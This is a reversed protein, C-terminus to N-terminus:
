PLFGPTSARALLALPLLSFGAGLALALARGGARIRGRNAPDLWGLSRHASETGHLLHLAVAAGAVVYLALAAPPALARLVAELEAGASARHLRLQSLHLALFLLLVGGSWPAWRGALAAMGELGGGRRSRLPGAVLGRALRHRLSRWLALCPHLLLAAALLVEALPLWPQHHLAVALREFGASDLLALSVGALHASLFLVLALGSLPVLAAYLDASAPSASGPQVGV